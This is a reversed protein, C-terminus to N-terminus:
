RSAYFSEDIGLTEISFSMMEDYDDFVKRVVNCRKMENESWGPPIREKIEFSMLSYLWNAQAKPERGLRTILVELEYSLVGREKLQAMNVRTATLRIYHWCNTNSNFREGYSMQDVDRFRPPFPKLYDAENM